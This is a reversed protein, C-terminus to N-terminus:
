ALGMEALGAMVYPALLKDAVQSTKTLGKEFMHAGRYSFPNVFRWGVNRIYVVRRTAMTFGDEIYPGYYVNTGVTVSYLKASPVVNVSFVADSPASTHPFPDKPDPAGIAGAEYHGISARLVGQDVPTALKIEREMFLGVETMGARMQIALPTAVGSGASVMHKSLNEFGYVKMTRGSTSDPKGMFADPPFGAVPINAM